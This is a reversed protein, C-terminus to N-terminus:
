GPTKTLFTNAVLEPSDEILTLANDPCVGVGISYETRNGNTNVHYGSCSSGNGVVTRKFARLELQYCCPDPFAETLPLTLKYRGGRWHPATEGQDLATGYNGTKQFIRWGTSAGSLPTVAASPQELLNRSQNLGWSSELVYYALHEDEDQALFEIEVMADPTYAVTDCPRVVVNNVKVSLIHTDPEPTCLHVGEGCNHSANHLAPETITRNDFTLVFENNQPNEEGGCMPILDGGTLGGAGDDQWGRVHFRYTGDAFKTSDLLFLLSYNTSLWLATIPASGPESPWKLPSDKEFHSRTELVNHSGIDQFKFLASIGPPSLVADWYRRNFNKAAGTPLPVWAPVALDEDLYEIEYYDLGALDNPNKFIPLLGGFPRHHSTSNVPVAGPNLYGVQTAAAGLNGGINSFPHGCVTDIILCDLEDCPPQPCPPPFCCASDDVVLTVETTTGMDWRVDNIGEDLIVENPAECDQTVKFILDPQCDWWPQWPYWPWVRLAELERAAPLEAVLRERLAPLLSLNAPKLSQSEIPNEDGIIKEFVKLSPQNEIRSLTLDPRLKLTNGVRDSLVNDLQWVRNRWWWSPWWGCCWRFTIEFTGDIDTIASGLKQKSTWIFWWDVDSACVTAGPVPSGDACIVKGRVTYTRCWSRWWFWYYPSIAVLPHELVAENGWQRSSVNLGLTQLGVLEENSAEAPGIVLQLAGPHKEFQFKAAAVSGCAVTVTDSYLKGQRDKVVVKIKQEGEQEKIASADLPISLVFGNNTNKM